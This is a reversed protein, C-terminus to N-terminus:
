YRKSGLTGRGHLREVEHDDARARGALPRRNVGRFLPSPDRQDLSPFHDAARADVGAGDGALRHALRHQVERAKQVLTDVADVVTHLLLDGHRVQREPDLLHDLVLDVDRLRLEGAVADRKSFPAAENTSGCVTFISLALPSIIHRASANMMAVPVFGASDGSTGTLPRM